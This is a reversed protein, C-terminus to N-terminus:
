RFQVPNGDNAQFVNRILEADSKTVVVPSGDCLGMITGQTGPASFLGSGPNSGPVYGQPKTWEVARRDDVVVIMATNATGDIIERIRGGINNEFPSGPMDVTLFTTKGPGASSGGRKFIAPMQSILPRNTPSDWPEDLNFKAYLQDEGVFPLIYVRWSLHTEAPRTNGERIPPFSQHTDHFNHMGLMLQRIKNKTALSGAGARPANSRGTTSNGLPSSSGRGFGPMPFPASQMAKTVEDTIPLTLSLTVAEGSKKFGISNIVPDIQKRIEEPASDRNERYWKQAEGFLNDLSKKLKGSAASSSCLTQFTLKVSSGKLDAGGGLGRLDNALVDGVTQLDEASEGLIQDAGPPIQKSAQSLLSTDSPVWGFFVDQRHNVFDFKEFRNETEATVATKLAELSGFVLTRDDAVFVAMKGNSDTYIKHGAHDQPEVGPVDDLHSEDFDKKIRLVAVFDESVPQTSDSGSPLGVTITDLDDITLGTHEEVVKMQEAYMPSDMQEKFVASKTIARLDVHVLVDTNEPLYTMDVVNASGGGILTMILLVLLILGAVAGGGILTPKVWAPTGGRRGRRSAVQSRPASAAPLGADSPLGGFPDNGAPLDSPLGAFPDNPDTQPAVPAPAAAAPAPSAPSAPAAPADVAFVFTQSCKPCRVTKGVLGTNKVALKAHCHPCSAQIPNSM